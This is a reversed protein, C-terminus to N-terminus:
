SLGGQFDIEAQLIKFCVDEAELNNKYSTKVDLKASCGFALLYVIDKRTPLMKLNKM